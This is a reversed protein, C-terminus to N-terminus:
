ERPLIRVQTGVSEAITKYAVYWAVDTENIKFEIQAGSLEPEIRRENDELQRVLDKLRGFVSASLERAVTGKADKAM